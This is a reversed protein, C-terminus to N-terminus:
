VEDKVVATLEFKMGENEANIKNLKIEKFYQSQCLNNIFVGVSPVTRSFGRIMVTNSRPVAAPEKAEPQTKP